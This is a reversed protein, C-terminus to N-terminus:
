RRRRLLALAGLAVLALTAPEPVASPDADLGGLQGSQLNFGDLFAFYDNAIDIQGDYNFDGYFWGAGVGNFGDLFAFYDDAIDVKGDLTSDGQWTYKVTIEEAATDDRYGLATPALPDAAHDAQAQGSTIGLGDWKGGDCGTALYSRIAAVPSTAGAYDIVLDNDMLDLKALSDNITLLKTTLVKAGGAALTATGNTLDLGDLHQSSGFNVAASSHLTLPGGAAADANLNFTGGTVTATGSGTKFVSDITTTGATQNYAGGVALSSGAGVTLTGSNALSAASTFQRGNRLSFTGQNDALADIRDFRSNAGDLIVAGQNTTINSATPIDLRGNPGVQWTGGTLVSGPLQTIPGAFVLRGSLAQISGTNDFVWEVTATGTGPSTRFTGANHFVPAGGTDFLAADSRIDFLGGAQNSFVPPSGGSYSLLPGADSVITTGASTLTRKLYKTGPGSLALTGGPQVQTIGSGTMSGGTWNLYAVTFTGPGALDIALAGASASGGEVLALTHAGAPMDLTGGSLTLRQITIDQGLAIAGGAVVADFTKGGNGNNPFLPCSDWRAADTWTGTTGDWAAVIDAARAGVTPCTVSLVASLAIAFLRRISM